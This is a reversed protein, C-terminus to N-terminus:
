GAYTVDTPHGGLTTSLRTRVDVLEGGLVAYTPRSPDPTGALGRVRGGLVTSLTDAGVTSGDVPVIDVQYLSGPRTPMLIALRTPAAWAIDSIRRMAGGVPVRYPRVLRLVRGDPATAVRDGVVVDGTRRHVVALLRTGDRSVLLRRADRRRARM